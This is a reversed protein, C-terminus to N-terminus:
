TVAFLRSLAFSIPLLVLVILGAIWGGFGAAISADMVILAIIGSKVAKMIDGSSLSNRAKWLPPFVILCFVSLFPLSNILTFKAALGLCAVGGVVLAFMLLAYNMSQQNGGHVEGRSILTIAGIYVIPILGLFWLAGVASPIISVGLLVNLGRCLGMNIPGWVDQHKGWGDYLLACAGTIIALIGSLSSVQFAALIGGGILVLGFLTAVQVSVIGAPLPREPREVRDLEVDFVDNMVVGGGYLGTTAAILWWLDATSGLTLLSELGNVWVVAAVAGMIINSIATIVNAPRMLRLLALLPQM